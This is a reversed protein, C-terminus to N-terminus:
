NNLRSKFKLVKDKKIIEEGLSADEQRSTKNPVQKNINDKKKLPALSPGM